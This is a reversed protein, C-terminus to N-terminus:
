SENRCYIPYGPNKLFLIANLSLKCQQELSIKLAMKMESYQLLRPQTYLGAAWKPWRAMALVGFSVLGSPVEPDCAPCMRIAALIRPISTLGPGDQCFAPESLEVPNATVTLFLAIGSLIQPPLRLLFAAFVTCTDSYSWHAVFCEVVPSLPRRPFM